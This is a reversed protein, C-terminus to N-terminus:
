TLSGGSTLLISYMRLRGYLIVASSIYSINPFYPAILCILTHTVKDRFSQECVNTIFNSCINNGFTQLM